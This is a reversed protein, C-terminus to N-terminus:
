RPPMPMTPIAIEYGFVESLLFVVLLLAFSMVVMSAAAIGTLVVVAAAGIVSVFPVLIPWRNYPDVPAFLTAFDPGDDSRDRSWGGPFARGLDRWTDEFGFEAM